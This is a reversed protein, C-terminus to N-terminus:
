PKIVGLLVALPITSFAACLGYGIVLSAQKLFPTWKAGWLGLHQFLSSLGHSLHMALLIQGLVYFGSILPNQFGLVVMQYANWDGDPLLATPQPGVYRLTFHALHYAFFALVVGGSLQMSKAAVRAPSRNEYAYPVPRAAENLQAARLATFIHLPFGVLLAIRVSWVLAPTHHLKAAYANFLEAGGYMTLNGALHGVVFVWLFLGTLAMVVKSGVSSLAFRLVAGLLQEDKADSAPEMAEAM